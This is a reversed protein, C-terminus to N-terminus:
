QRRQQSLKLHRKEERQKEQKRLKRASKMQKQPKKKKRKKQNLYIVLNSYIRQSKRKWSQKSSNPKRKKNLLNNLILKMLLPQRQNLGLLLKSNTHPTHILEKDPTLM